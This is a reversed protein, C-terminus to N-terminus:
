KKIKDELEMWFSVQRKGKVAEWVTIADYVIALYLYLLILACLLIVKLVTHDNVLNLKGDVVLTFVVCVIPQSAAYFKGKRSPKDHYSM